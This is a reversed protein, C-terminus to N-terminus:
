SKTLVIDEKEHHQGNGNLGNGSPLELLTDKSRDIIVREVEEREPRQGAWLWKAWVRIDNFIVILVPFFLLIIFTGILVGYAVSIAMPILFQAQFSKELILPYLGVVTTISTLMIPRFRSVGADYAADYVRMGTKLNRNYKDLFVVADNIIVGSLAIMGWASLLSVPFGPHQADFLHSRFSEIGHGWCSGIWGLPIMSIVLIGQYFSRFTVMILIIIILFAGGFFLLLENLAKNSQRAQGGSEVKVSPFNSLVQPVIEENVKKLIPPLEAYPNTLEADVTVTRNAQFHKIDAIGREINYDVLDKFYFEKGSQKIKMNELQGFSLRGSKPYRVWIRLEDKGKQFRQVEEGFFGQRVQKAIEGQSFGLFYAQPKLEMQLERRGISNDDKVEKLDAIKELEKKLYATAEALQ